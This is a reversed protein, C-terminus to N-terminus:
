GRANSPVMDVAAVAAVAWFGAYTFAGALRTALLVEYSATLAGIVPTVVFVALFTLLSRRRPWRLTAVALLPAGVLMGAAFASILLGADPISVGLDGAIEPLLGSLMFESTGQAFIALGLIYVALPM